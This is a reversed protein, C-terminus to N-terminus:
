LELPGRVGMPQPRNRATKPRTSSAGSISTRISIRPHVNSTRPRPMAAHPTTDHSSSRPRRSRQSYSEWM